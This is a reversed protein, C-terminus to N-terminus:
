CTLGLGTMRQLAFLWVQRVSALGRSISGRYVTGSARGPTVTQSQRGVSSYRNILSGSHGPNRNANERAALTATSRIPRRQKSTKGRSDVRWRALRATLTVASRANLKVAPLKLKNVCIFKANTNRYSMWIRRTQTHTTSAMAVSWHRMSMLTYLVHCSQGATRTEKEVPNIAPHPFFFLCFFTWFPVSIKTQFCSIRAQLFPKFCRWTNIGFLNKSKTTSACSWLWVGRQEVSKM